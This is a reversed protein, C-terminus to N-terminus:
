GDTAARLVGSRGECFKGGPDKATAYAETANTTPYLFMFHTESISQQEAYLSWAGDGERVYLSFYALQPVGEALAILKVASQPVHLVPRDQGDSAMVDFDSRCTIEHFLPVPTGLDEDFFVLTLGLMTLALASAWAVRAIRKRDRPEAM